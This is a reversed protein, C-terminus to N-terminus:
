GWGPAAGTNSDGSCVHYDVEIALPNGTGIAKVYRIASVLHHVKFARCGMDYMDDVIANCGEQITNRVLGSLVNAPIDTLDNYDAVEDTFSKGWSKKPM